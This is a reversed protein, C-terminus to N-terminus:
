RKTNKGFNVKVYHCFVTGITGIESTCILKEGERGRERVGERESVCVMFNEVHSKMTQTINM